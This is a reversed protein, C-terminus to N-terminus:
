TMGVRRYQARRSNVFVREIQFPYEREAKIEALIKEPCMVPRVVGYGRPKGGLMSPHPKLELGTRRNLFDVMAARLYNRSSRSHPAALQQTPRHLSGAIMQWAEMRISEAATRTESDEVLELIRECEAIVVKCSPPSNYENFGGHKATQEVVGQLRERGYQLMEDDSFLEGAAACVGGGLVAINTYGPGVDRKRIAAAASRLADETHQRTEPSLMDAHQILIHALPAGCFDAWNLDPPTMEAIPEELLWPWVGFAESESDSDQLEVVVM